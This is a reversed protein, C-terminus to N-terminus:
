NKFNERGPTADVAWLEDGEGFVDTAVVDFRLFDMDVRLKSLFDAYKASLKTEVYRIDGDFLSFWFGFISITLKSLFIYAVSLVSYGGGLLLFTVLM